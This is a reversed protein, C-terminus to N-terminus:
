ISATEAYYYVAEPNLAKCGCYLFNELAFADDFPIKEMEYDTLFWPEAISEKLMVVVEVNDGMRTSEHVEISDYMGILGNRPATGNPLEDLENKMEKRAKASLVIVLDEADIGDIYASQTTKATVIMEDLIDKIATKNGAYATGETKAVGFFKTDLYAVVRKKFNEKRKEALGAVGLLKLDKKQVEEVIEKDDDLNVLVNEDQVPTGKGATRATGKTQLTANKIRKYKITGGEPDGSGRKNKIMESVATVQINEIVGDLVEKLTDLTEQSLDTYVNLSNQAM